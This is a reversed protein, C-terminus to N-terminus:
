QPVMFKVKLAKCTEIFEKKDFATWGYESTSIGTYERLPYQAPSHSAWATYKHERYEMKCKISQNQALEFLLAYDKDMM